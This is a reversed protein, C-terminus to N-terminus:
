EVIAGAVFAAVAETEADSRWLAAIVWPPLKPRLKLIKLGPGATGSVCSPVLAYEQGAAVTAFLSPGSDHESGIRPKRGITAFLQGPHKHYCPYDNRAFAAVPNAAMDKLSVSKSKALPHKLGVAVCTEYSALVKMKLERALKGAPVTLALDLTKAMLMPLMEEISLDHLIM